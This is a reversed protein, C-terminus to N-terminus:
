ETDQTVPLCNYMRNSVSHICAVSLKDFAFLRDTPFCLWYRIYEIWPNVASLAQVGIRSTVTSEM